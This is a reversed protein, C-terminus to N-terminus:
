HLTGFLRPDDRTVEERILDMIFLGNDEGALLKRYAERAQGDRQMRKPYYFSGDAPRYGGWRIKEFAKRSKLVYQKGLNGLKLAAALQQVTITNSLFARAYSFFSDDARYGIVADAAEADVPFHSLMYEKGREEVPSGIRLDRNMLLITIWELVHHGEDTLDLIVFGSDDLEYENVFGGKIDQAAWEAALERDETLYFGQGFDNDSRGKGFVPQGVIRVSGHYLKRKGERGM